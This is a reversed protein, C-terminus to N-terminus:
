RADVAIARQVNETATGRRPVRLYADTGFGDLVVMDLSGGWFEAYTRALPAGLGLHRMPHTPLTRPTRTSWELTSTAPVAHPPPPPLIGGDAAGSHDEGWLAADDDHALGTPWGRPSASTDSHLAGTLQEAVTGTLYPTRALQDRQSQLWASDDSTGSWSVSALVARRAVLEPDVPPMVADPSSRRVFSFIHPLVSRPVGGGQDSVRVVVDDASVSLTVVIPRAALAEADYFVEPGGAISDDRHTARRVTAVMANKLLELLIYELHDPLYPFVVNRALDSAAAVTVPPVVPLGPFTHKVLAEAIAAAREICALASTETDVVGTRTSPTLSAALAAAPTTGPSTPAPRHQALHWARTLALHQQALVRRGIRSRLMESMFTDVAKASLVGRDHCELLGLALRPIVSRHDKLMQRVLACFQANDDTTEIVPYNRFTEFATYYDSYVSSLLPNSVAIYPLSTQFDRLRHALRVPLEERLYNASKILKQENVHRGFTILQRLTVRTPERAAYQELVRSAYFHQRADLVAGPAAAAPKAALPSSRSGAASAAPHSGPASALKKPSLAAAAADTARAAAATHPGATANASAGAFAPFHQNSNATASNSSATSPSSPSAASSSAATPSSAHPGSSWPPHALGSIGARQHLARKSATTAVAHRHHSCRAAVSATPAAATTITPARAALLRHM